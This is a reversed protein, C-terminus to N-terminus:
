TINEKDDRMARITAIEVARRFGRPNSQAEPALALLYLGQSDRRYLVRYRSRGRRPRLERLGIVAKTRVASSWPHGLQDFEIALIEFSHRIAVEERPHSYALRTLEDVLAPHLRLQRDPANRTVCAGETIRTITVPVSVRSLHATDAWPIHTM